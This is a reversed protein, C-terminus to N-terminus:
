ELLLGGDQEYGGYLGFPNFTVFPYYSARGVIWTTESPMGEPVFKAATGIDALEFIDVLADIDAAQKDLEIALKRLAESIAPGDVSLDDTSFKKLLLSQSSAITRLAQAAARRPNDLYVNLIGQLADDGFWLYDGQGPINPVLPVAEFDGILARVQGLPVTYDPPFNGVNPM